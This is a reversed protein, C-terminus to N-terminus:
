EKGRFMEHVANTYMKKIIPRLHPHQQLLIRAQVGANIEMIKYEGKIDEVIDVTAFTIGICKAAKVALIKLDNIKNKDEETENPLVVARAGKSLNHQWENEAPQKGYIFPCEGNNYFVRYETKIDVYPSIACSPHSTFITQVAAEMLPISDCYYVDNGLTGQNPKLVASRGTSNFYALAATWSGESTAWNLRQKPNFFLEHHIVPIGNNALILSCANKDGAIRDAAANNIEWFAGFIHCTIGNKSLRLVYDQSFSEIKIGQEDCIEKLFDRQGNM